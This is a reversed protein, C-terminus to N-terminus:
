IAAPQGSPSEKEIRYTCSDDGNPIFATRTVKRGFIKEYFRAELRCPLSTERIVSKFPCNCERVILLGDSKNYNIEPMFGESELLASLAKLGAPLSGHDDPTAEHFESAAQMAECAKVARKNWFSEFFAQLLQQNGNDLLYKILDSLLEREESPFREEGQHTLRYQLAPRGPGNRKHSRIVLGDRELLALHERLTTRALGTRGALQDMDAAGNRKIVDLIQTKSHSLTVHLFHFTDM